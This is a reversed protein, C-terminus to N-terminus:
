GTREVCERLESLWARTDDTYLNSGSEWWARFLDGESLDSDLLLAIHDILQRHEVVTLTGVFERVGVSVDPYVIFFDQHIWKGFARWVDPHDM